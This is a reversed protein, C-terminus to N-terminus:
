RHVANVVSMQKFAWDTVYDITALTAAERPQLESNNKMHFDIRSLLFYADTNKFRSACILQLVADDINRLTEDTTNFLAKKFDKYIEAIERGLETSSEDADDELIKLFSATLTSRLANYKNELATAKAITAYEYWAKLYIEKNTEVVSVPYAVVPQNRTNLYLCMGLIVDVDGGNKIWDNYVDGNVIITTGNDSPLAGLVLINGKNQNDISVLKNYLMYGATNRIKCMLDNYTSLDMQAGEPPNDVLNRAILFVALARNENHSLKTAFDRHDSKLTDNFFDLWISAFYENGQEAVWASIAKDTNAFGTKLYNNIIDETVVDGLKPLLEVPSLRAAKFETILALLNGDHFVNSLSIINIKYGNLVDSVSDNLVDSVSEVLQQQMPVVQNRAINLQKQVEKIGNEVMIDFNMNHSTPLPGSTVTTIQATAKSDLEVAQNEDNGTTTIVTTSNNLVAVPTDDIAELAVGHALLKKALPKIGDIAQASIM